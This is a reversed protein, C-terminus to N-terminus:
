IRRRGTKKGLRLLSRSNFVKPPSGEVRSGIMTAQKQDMEAIKQQSIALGERDGISMLVRSATREALANHLEPPIQPIICENALCIYDGIKVSVFQKEGGSGNSLYTKLDEAKFKGVNSSPISRLKIDYAYTRHGPNTQLFDVKCNAVYLNSTDGTTNDQYTSPLSDFHILVNNNDISLGNSIETFTSTIEEYDISIVNSSVNATIIGEINAAIIANAINQATINDTAGIQFQLAGPSSTVATFKTIVPSPTQVGTTITITDGAVLNLNNTITIEKVFHQITAARDNAVLQNPRLYIFFNLNGTPSNVIEPTLVIENGEIYYKGVAQNSGVNLQWFAKDEPAVRSMKFFNGSADSFSLDRLAMGMTRYPIEYRSVGYVIPVIVKFVFYEAREQMIQPVANLMLEESAMALIDNYTLTNQSLPFSIRREVSAVLSDSTLYPLAQTM